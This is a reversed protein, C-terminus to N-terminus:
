REEIYKRIEKLVYTERSIWNAIPEIGLNIIKNNNKIADDINVWEPKFGLKAEYPDLKQSKKKNYVEAFYYYSIMKFIRDNFYKDKSKETIIGVQENIKSCVYGTEEEVERKLAEIYGEGKKIGGGPFKYDRNKSHVMLIKNDKIIVGRVAERFNINGISENVKDIEFIKNFRM